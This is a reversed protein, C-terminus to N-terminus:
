AGSRVRLRTGGVQVLSDIALVREAHRELRVFTGKDPARDILMLEHGLLRLMCHVPALTQDNPICLTAADRGITVKGNLVFIRGGRLGVLVHELRWSGPEVPAGFIRPQKTENVRKITGLFRFLQQGISFLAGEDLPQEHNINTYVGSTSGGDAVYLSGDRVFFSAHTPALFRDTGIPAIGKGVLTGSKSVALSTGSMPGSVIELVFSHDVAERFASNPVLITALEPRVSIRANSIVPEDLVPHIEAQAPPASGPASEAAPRPAISEAKATLISPPVKEDTTTTEAIRRLVQKAQANDPDIRLIKEAIREAGNRDGNILLWRAAEVLKITRKDTTM